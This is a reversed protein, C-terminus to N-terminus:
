LGKAIEEIRAIEEESFQVEEKTLKDTARKIGDSKSGKNYIRWAESIQDGVSYYPHLSSMPDQFIM